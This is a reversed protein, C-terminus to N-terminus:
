KALLKARRDQLERLQRLALGVPYPEFRFASRSLEAALPRLREVDADTYQQPQRSWVNWIAPWGGFAVPLKINSKLTPWFFSLDPYRAWEGDRVVAPRGAAIVEFAKSGERDAYFGAGGLMPELEPGQAVRVVFGTYRDLQLLACIRDVPMVQGLQEFFRTWHAPTLAAVRAAEVLDDTM